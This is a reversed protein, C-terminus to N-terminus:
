KNNSVLHMKNYLNASRIWLAHDARNKTKTMSWQALEVRSVCSIYFFFGRSFHLMGFYWWQDFLTSNYTIVDRSFRLCVSRSYSYLHQVYFIIQVLLLKLNFNFIHCYIFFCKHLLIAWIRDFDHVISRPLKRVISNMKPRPWLCICWLENSVYCEREEAFWNLSTFTHSAIFFKHARMKKWLLGFNLHEESVIGMYAFM